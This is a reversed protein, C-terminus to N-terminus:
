PFLVKGTVKWQDEIELAMLKLKATSIMNMYNKHDLALLLASNEFTRSLISM